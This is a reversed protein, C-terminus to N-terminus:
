LELLGSHLVGILGLRSRMESFLIESFILIQIILFNNSIWM